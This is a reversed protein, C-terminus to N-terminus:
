PNNMFLLGNWRLFKLTSGTNDNWHPGSFGVDTGLGSCKAQLSNHDTHLLLNYIPPQPVTCLTTIINLHCIIEYPGHCLLSSYAVASTARAHVFPCLRVIVQPSNAGLGATGPM